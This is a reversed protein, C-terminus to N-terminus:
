SRFCQPIAQRRGNGVFIWPRPGLDLNRPASTTIDNTLTELGGVASFIFPFVQLQKKSLGLPAMEIVESRLDTSTRSPEMRETVAASRLM